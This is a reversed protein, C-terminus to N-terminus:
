RTDLCEVHYTYYIVIRGLTNAGAGYFMPDVEFKFGYHKVSTSGMDLWMETNGYGTFAGNYVAVAVHPTFSFKSVHDLRQVSFTSYQYYDASQTLATDDDLDVVSLLQPISTPTTAAIAVNAGNFTCAFKIDVRAIRYRDFLSTFETYSPLAALEFSRGYHQPAAWDKLDFAESIVRKFQFVPSKTVGRRLTLTRNRKRKNNPKNNILNNM